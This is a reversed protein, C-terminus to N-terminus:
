LEVQRTQNENSYIKWGCINNQSFSTIRINKLTNKITPLNKQNPIIIRFGDDKSRPSVLVIREPFPWAEDSIAKELFFQIALIAKQDLHPNAEAISLWQTEPCLDRMRKLLKGLSRENSLSESNLCFRERLVKKWDLEEESCYEKQSEEQRVHGGTM